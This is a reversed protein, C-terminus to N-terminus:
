KLDKNAHEILILVNYLMIKLDDKKDKDHIHNIKHQIAMKLRYLSNLYTNVKDMYGKKKALIMWGLKEFKENYWKHLGCYTTECSYSQKKMTNSKHKTYNKKTHVM